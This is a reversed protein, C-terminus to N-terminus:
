AIWRKWRLPFDVADVVFADDDNADDDNADDDGADGAYDGVVPM